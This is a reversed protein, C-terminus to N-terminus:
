IIDVTHEGGSHRELYDDTSLTDIVGNLARDIVSPPFKRKPITFSGIRTYSGFLPLIYCGIRTYTGALATRRLVLGREKRQLRDGVQSESTGVHLLFFSPSSSLATNAAAKLDEAVAQRCTDWKVDISGEKILTDDQELQCNDSVYLWGSENRILWRFKCLRGRLRLRCSEVGGFYNPSLRSIEINLVAPTPSKSSFFRVCAVPATISAWSWSPAHPAERASEGGLNRDHQLWLLSLPLDNRWIGALYDAPKRGMAICFQKALASVALLRDEVFTVSTLSYVGVVAEWRSRLKDISWSTSMGSGMTYRHLERLKGIGQPLVESGETTLCEWFVQNKTFHAIRPSLAREQFVWGRNNLPGEYTEVVYNYNYALLEVEPPDRDAVKVTKRCPNTSFMNRDFVLGKSVQGEVASINLTTNLYIEHMQMVDETKEPGDDQMICLADIWIYRLGLCRTVHIAHRFVAADATGLLYSTIDEKLFYSTKKELLISPPSGWRHSLTLYPTDSALSKSSIIRVNSLQELSLLNFDDQSLHGTGWDRDVETAMTDILRRPLQGRKKSTRCNGHSELCTRLWSRIKNLSESSCTTLSELNCIQKTQPDYEVLQITVGDIDPHVSFSRSKSTVLGWLQGPNPCPPNALYDSLSTGILACLHCSLLEINKLVHAQYTTDFPTLTSDQYDRGQVLILAAHEFVSNCKECIASAEPFSTM